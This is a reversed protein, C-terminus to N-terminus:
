SKLDVNTLVATETIVITIGQRYLVVHTKLLMGSSKHYWRKMSATTWTYEIVWCDRQQGLVYISESKGIVNKGYFIDITSGLTVNTEIWFPWKEGVYNTDSCNVIERNVVDITFNAEGATLAVNGETVNVGHSSLSLDAFDDRLKAINWIMYDTESHGNWIFFQEYTMYTGSKLWSPKSVEQFQMYLYVGLVLSVGLTLLVAILLLMKRNM